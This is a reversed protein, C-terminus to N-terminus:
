LSIEGDKLVVEWSKVPATRARTRTLQWAPAEWVDSARPEMQWRSEVGQAGTQQASLILGIPRANSKEAALHLRRVPTLAPPERPEAIVLPVAGASLVEEMCWLVDEEKPASLLTLRSPQLFRAFGSPNLANHPWAPSIWFVPGELQSAVWLAFLRRAAGTAEHVRAYALSAEPTLALAPRSKLATYAPALSM